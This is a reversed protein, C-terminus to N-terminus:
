EEGVMDQEGENQEEEQFDNLAEQLMENFINSDGQREPEEIALMEYDPDNKDLKIGFMKIFPHSIFSEYLTSEEEDSAKSENYFRDETALEAAVYGYAARLYELPDEVEQWSGSLLKRRARKAVNYSMDLNYYPYFIQRSNEGSAHWVSKDRIEKELDETLLYERQKETLKKCEQISKAFEKIIQERYRLSEKDCLEKGIFGWMDYDAKEVNIQITVKNKVKNKNFTFIWKPFVPRNNRTRFDAFLMLLCELYPFIELLKNKIERCFEEDSVKNANEPLEIDYQFYDMEGGHYYGIDYHQPIDRVLGKGIGKFWNGGFSYGLFNKLREAAREKAEEDPNNQYSYYERTMEVTFSALICHVLPKDDYNERGLKYINEMLDSYRYHMWEVSDSTKIWQGDMWNKIFNIAYSARRMINRERIRKFCEQQDHSLIQMVMREDIDKNIREHNEDYRLMKEEDNLGNLCFLSDLFDSYSVLERITRPLCFHRKLGLADYYIGTKDAMKRLVFKKIGIEGADTEVKGENLIRSGVPMYIRNALTLMKLLCDDYLGNLKRSLRPKDEEFIFDSLLSDQLYKKGVINLQDLDIAILVIVRPNTMYKYLKELIQFGNGMNLDLDDVSIVLFSNENYENEDLIKLFDKILSDLANKVKLSNPVNKLKILVNEGLAERKEGVHIYNKYLEDFEKVIDKIQDRGHTLDRKNKYRREIEEYMKSWILEILDEENELLSADICPLIHFKRKQASNGKHLFNKDWIDWKVEYTDLIKNVERLVTTKGSGRVGIFSFINNLESYRFGQECEKEQREGRAYAGYQEGAKELYALIANLAEAYCDIYLPYEINLKQVVDDKAKKLKIKLAKKKDTM